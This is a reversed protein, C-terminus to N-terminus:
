LNSRSSGHTEGFFFLAAVIIAMGGLIPIWVRHQKGRKRVRERFISTDSLQPEPSLHRLSESLVNSLPSAHKVEEKQEVTGEADIINEKEITKDPVITNVPQNTEETSTEATAAEEAALIEPEPIEESLIEAAPTETERLEAEPTEAELTEAEPTEAEPIIAEPTETERLETEPTEASPIEVAQTEAVPFEAAPTETAGIQRKPLSVMKQMHNYIYEEVDEEGAIVEPLADFTVGENLLSPEFNSFFINVSNKLTDHPTFGVKYYYAVEEKGAEIQEATERERIQSFGFTGFGNVEVQKKDALSDFIVDIWKKLFLTADEKTTKENKTSLISAIESIGTRETRDM